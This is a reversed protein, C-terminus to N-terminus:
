TRRSLYTKEADTFWAVRRCEPCVRIQDAHDMRLDYGCLCQIFSLTLRVKPLAREQEIAKAIRVGLRVRLWRGKKKSIVLAGKASLSRLLNVAAPKPLHLTEAIDRWALITGKRQDLSHVIALLVKEDCALHDDKWIVEPMEVHRLLLNM